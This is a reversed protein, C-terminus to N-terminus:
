RALSGPQFDWFIRSGLGKPHLLRARGILILASFSLLPLPDGHGL